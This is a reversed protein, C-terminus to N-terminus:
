AQPATEVGQDSRVPAEAVVPTGAVAATAPRRLLLEASRAEISRWYAFENLRTGEVVAMVVAAMFPL